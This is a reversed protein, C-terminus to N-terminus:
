YGISQADQPTGAFDGVVVPWDVKDHEAWADDVPHEYAYRYYPHAMSRKQKDRLYDAFRKDGREEAHKLQRAAGSGRSYAAWWNSPFVFGCDPCKLILGCSWLYEKCKPCSCCGPDAGFAARWNVSGDERVTGGLKEVYDACDKHVSEATLNPPYIIIPDKM